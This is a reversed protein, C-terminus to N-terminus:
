ELATLRDQLEDSLEKALISVTSFLQEDLQKEIDGHLVRSVYFALSWIGIVFILLTILTIRTKLSHRKHVTSTM